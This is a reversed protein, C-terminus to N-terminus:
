GNATRGQAFGQPRSRFLPLQTGDGPQPLAAAHFRYHTAQHQRAPTLVELIGRRHLEHLATQTARASRGVQRAVRAISPYVRTGDEAAFTACAAAYPKLWGPLTSDYVAAVLRWSV